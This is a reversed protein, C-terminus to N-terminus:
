DGNPPQGKKAAKVDESLDLTSLDSLKRPHTFLKLTQTTLEDSGLLERAMLMAKAGQTKLAQQVIV